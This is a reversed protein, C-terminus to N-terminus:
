QRTQVWLFPTPVRKWNVMGKKLTDLFIHSPRSPFNRSAQNKVDEVPGVTPLHHEMGGFIILRELVDQSLSLLPYRPLGM